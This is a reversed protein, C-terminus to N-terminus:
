QDAQDFKSVGIIEDLFMGYALNSNPAQAKFKLRRSQIRAPPYVLIWKPHYKKRRIGPTAKMVKSTSTKPQRYNRKISLQM